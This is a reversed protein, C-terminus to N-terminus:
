QPLVGCDVNICQGTIAKAKPSSLFICLEAVDEADPLHGLASSELVFNKLYKSVDKGKAPSDKDNLAKLVGDTEVYVPCVANVRIGRSGLEKALAQTIGNVAFKTACYASNNASGRKGALSSINIICGEKKMGSAAAQCGFFTGKLNTDIMKNLFNEDVKEVRKWESFGACNIYVDIRGTWDLARRTLNVHDVKNRVDIKFFKAREGLERAIGNDDRAGIVVYSGDEYYRRSIAAGIGKTGGTVIVTSKNYKVM